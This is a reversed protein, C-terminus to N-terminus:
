RRRRGPTWSTRTASSAARCAASTPPTAPPSTVARTSRCLRSTPSSRTSTTRSATPTSRTGSRSRRRRLVAAPLGALRREPRRGLERLPAAHLRPALRAGPRPRAARGAPRRDWDRGGNRIYWQRTTVIELPKDGKEYFNAMRQTPTPEGDLDGTARLADVVAARAAYMTRGALEDYRARGGETTIWEPTEALMRGDRGIVSRTPLQLERWWQVDTLDGFTCCMAIGAGKDPEAAPHRWCRSRSASCRPPAGDHRVAAPLARRRPARDARGRGPDARAPHDRHLDPRRRGHPLRGPPLPRPVRPGRARGARRRDPVHRGVPRAGRGPLGRRPGPQAPLGAPRGDPRQRRDDPLHPGLRGVARPLAVAGRVAARGRRDAARVARRLQAPLDAVQDASKISKGEGGEHPPTFDADYPLSPDCRVGYYNQVRRETPLGNDDWGM